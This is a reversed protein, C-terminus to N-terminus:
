FGFILAFSANHEKLDIRSNGSFEPAGVFGHNFDVDGLDIYQYQVRASWHNSIAYQLGGGVMWGVQTDSTSGGQVPGGDGAISIQQDFDIDGVAVGGTVYPLWRCFAYGVRAGGTFLYHTKYSTSVRYPDEFEFFTGTSDSDRLWLYSGAGELGFVWNHWQYNFGIVGGLDAGSSSLFDGSGRNQIEGQEVPDGDWDGTLRLDTATDGYKYGGAIGLYFGTWNPCAPPVPAVQKMDKGSFQEPGAYVLAGCACLISLTLALQKM